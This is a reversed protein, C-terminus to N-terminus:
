GGYTGVDYRIYSIYYISTVVAPCKSIQREGSGGLLFVGHILLVIAGRAGPRIAYSTDGAIQM